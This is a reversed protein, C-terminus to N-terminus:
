EAGRHIITTFERRELEGALIKCCDDCVMITDLRGDYDSRVHKENDYDPCFHKQCYHCPYANIQACMAEEV